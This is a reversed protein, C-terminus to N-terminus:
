HAQEFALARPFLINNELHFHQHMDKELAELGHYLAQFSMCADEPPQYGHTLARLSKLIEGTDDHDSMMHRIPNILAGFFAPEPKVGAEAAEEIKKLRPFLVQEEKLMHTSVEANLTQVLERIQHTQPHSHGHRTEVKSALAALRPLEKKGYAHHVDVIHAALESLPVTMWRSENEAPRAVLASSLHSLVLNLSVNQRACAAELPRNGGCCYDIGFAEFVAVSAPYERAIQAVTQTSDLNM